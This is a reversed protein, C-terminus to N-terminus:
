GRNHCYNLGFSIDLIYRCSMCRWHSYRKKQHHLSPVSNWWHTRCADVLLFQKWCCSLISQFSKRCWTYLMVCHPVHLCFVCCWWLALINTHVILPLSHKVIAMVCSCYFFILFYMEFNLCAGRILHVMSWVNFFQVYFLELMHVITNQVADIFIGLLVSVSRAERLSPMYGLWQPTSWNLLSQSLKKRWMMSANSLIVSWWWHMGTCSWTLM